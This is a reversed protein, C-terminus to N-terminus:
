KLRRTYVIYPGREWEIRYTDKAKNLPNLLLSRLANHKFGAKEVAKISAINDKNIVCHLENLKRRKATKAIEEKSAGSFGKGRFEPLIITRGIEGKLTPFALRLLLSPHKYDNFHVSTVGIIQGKKIGKIREQNEIVYWTKGNKITRLLNHETTPEFFGLDELQSKHCLDLILKEDTKQGTSTKEGLPILKVKPLKM